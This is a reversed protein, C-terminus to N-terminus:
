VILDVQQLTGVRGEESVYIGTGRVQGHLTNASDKLDFPTASQGLYLAGVKRQALSTIQDQGQDDKSWILLQAFIRDSEDIWGNRDDDYAALDAFGDGSQAGFLETGNDIAGNANKDLALFGSAGTVFSIQDTAGDSDIDFDYKQATLRAATGGFNIVLPDKRVGDGARLSVTSESAFERQMQMSVSFQLTKGDATRIEGQASFSTQELEYVSERRDYEVGWGAPQATQGSASAVGDVPAALAAGQGARTFESADLRVFKKGTYAEILIILLKLKPDSEVADTQPDVAGVGTSALDGGVASPQGAQGTATQAASQAVAQRGAESISVSVGQPGADTGAGPSLTASDPIRQQGEFDPRQSGAWARLSEEVTVQSIRTHQSAFSVASGEIKM